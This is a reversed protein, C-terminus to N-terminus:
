ASPINFFVFRRLFSVFRRIKYRLKIRLCYPDIRRGNREISVIKGLIQESSVPTDSNIAADGRLTFFPQSNLVSSQFPLLSAQSSDRLKESPKEIPAQIDMLRHAVVGNEHGYLLIDGVIADSPEIPEVTILDGDYITPYMSDGPAKFRVQHGERLLEISTELFFHYSSAQSQITNKYRVSSHNKEVIEM